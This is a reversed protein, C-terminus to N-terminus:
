NLRATADMACETEGSYSATAIREKSSKSSGYPDHIQVAGGPIHAEEYKIVLYTNFSLGIAGIYPIPRSKAQGFIVGYEGCNEWEIPAKLRSL